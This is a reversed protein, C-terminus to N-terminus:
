YNKGHKYPRMANYQMKHKVFFEIDIKLYECWMEMYRLGFMIRKEVSTIERCLGRCLGYACECFSFKEFDRYYKCPAIKDFDMGLAGGLDLLRIIIDAMEDEVTNKVNKEFLTKYYGKCDEHKYAVSLDIDFSQIIASHRSKRDAELAEAVESLILMLCHEKSPNNEWFGHNVANEHIEKSLKTYNM